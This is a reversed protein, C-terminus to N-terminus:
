TQVVNLYAEDQNSWTSIPKANKPVAQFKALHSDEFDCPRIIIPVLIVENRQGREIATLIENQRIYNSALFDSSILFLIVEAENIAAKIKDDWGQGPTLQQDNWEEIVGEIKLVALHAILQDKFLEDKHSYSIFVK